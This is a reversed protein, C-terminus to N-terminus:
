ITSYHTIKCESIKSLLNTKKEESTQWQKSKLDMETGEERKDRERKGPHTDTRGGAGNSM